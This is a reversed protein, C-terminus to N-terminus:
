LIQINEQLLWGSWGNPLGIQYWGDSSRLVRVKLGEHITFVTINENGPGSRVDVKQEVVIANKRYDREYVKWSLSCAALLFLIGTVTCGILARYSHRPNRALLYISFLANSAIFLTLMLWVEQNVTFIRMMRSLFQVPLPYEPIELRDIILLYALELNERVERDAPMKELAKEWYYIANGLRKQKFCANGLNYYLAGSEIGSDLITRYYKEAATFNGKQYESNGQEFYSALDEERQFAGGRSVFALCICAVYLIIAISKAQEYIRNQKKCVRKM